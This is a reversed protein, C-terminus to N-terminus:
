FMTNGRYSLLKSSRIRESLCCRLRSAILSIKEWTQLAKRVKAPKRVNVSWDFIEYSPLPKSYRCQWLITWLSRVGELTSTSARFPLHNTQARKDGGSRVKTWFALASLQNQCTHIFRLLYLRHLQAGRRWHWLGPCCIRLCWRYRHVTSGLELIAGRSWIRSMEQPKDREARWQVASYGVSTPIM